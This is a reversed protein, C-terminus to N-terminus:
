EVEVPEQKVNKLPKPQQKESDIPTQPQPQSADCQPATKNTINEDTNVQQKKRLFEKCIDLVLAQVSVYRRLTIEPQRLFWINLQGHLM